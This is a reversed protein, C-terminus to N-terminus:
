DLGLMYINLLLPSVITGQPTGKLSHEFKPGDMIGSKLMAKIFNLFKKDRIRKRLLDMLINHVVKNYASIIDGEIIINCRQTKKKLNEIADWVSLNPRFGYNNSLYNTTQGWEKFVPEFIAELIGRVTEQVIRDSQSSVDIPRLKNKGPKFKYNGKKVSEAIRKAAEQGFLEMPCEDEHGKTLAGKNKSIKTYANVYIFPDHLLYMLKYNVHKTHLNREIHKNFNKGKKLLNKKQIKTLKKM